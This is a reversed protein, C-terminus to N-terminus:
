DNQQFIYYQQYETAADQSKIQKKNGGFKKNDEIKDFENEYM